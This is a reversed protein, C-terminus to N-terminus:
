KGGKVLALIEEDTMSDDVTVQRSNVDLAKLDSELDAIAEKIDNVKHEAWKLNEGCSGDGQNGDLETIIAQAEIDTLKRKGDILKSVLGWVASEEAEANALTELAEKLNENLLAIQNKYNRKNTNTNM